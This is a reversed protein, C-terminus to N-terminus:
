SREAIDRIFKKRTVEDVGHGETWPNDLDEKIKIVSFEEPDSCSNRKAASTASTFGCFDKEEELEEMKSLSLLIPITVKKGDIKLHTLCIGLDLAEKMNEMTPDGIIDQFPSGYVVLVDLRVTSDGFNTSDNKLVGIIPDRAGTEM